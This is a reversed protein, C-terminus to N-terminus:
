GEQRPERERGPAAGAARRLLHKVARKLGLRDLWRGAHYNLAELAQFARIRVANALSPPLLMAQIFEESGTSFAEKYWAEGVGFDFQRFTREQFLSELILYLLTTGPSMRSFEPLYGIVGYNLREGHGTCWAFAAAKGECWLLYGRAMGRRAAEQMKALFEPGRPMGAALLRDQYTQRSIECALRQFEEMQGPESAITMPRDHSREAFWRVSRRLNHRRKASFRRLYADFSGAIDVFYLKEIGRVYCLWKGQRSLGLPLRGIPLRRCLIGDVQQPLEQPRFELWPPQNREAEGVDLLRLKWTWLTREGIRFRLAPTAIELDRHMCYGDAPVGGHYGTV